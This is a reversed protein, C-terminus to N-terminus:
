EEKYEAWCSMCYFDSAKNWFKREHCDDDNMCEGCKSCHEAADDLAMDGPNETPLVWLSTNVAGYNRALMVVM